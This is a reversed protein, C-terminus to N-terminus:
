SIVIEVINNIYFTSYFDKYNKLNNIYKNYKKILKDKNPKESFIGLVFTGYPDGDNATVVYVKDGIKVKKKDFIFKNSFEDNAIDNFCNIVFFEEPNIFIEKTDLPNNIIKVKDISLYLTKENFTTKALLITGKKYNKKINKKIEKKSQKLSELYQELIKPNFKM